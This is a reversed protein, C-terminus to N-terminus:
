ECTMGNATFLRDYTTLGSFTPIPEALGDNPVYTVDLHNCDAVEVTATGWPQLQLGNVLYGLEIELSRDNPLFAANGVLWLPDGNTDELLLDFVIQRQLAGNSGVAETVQLLLGENLEANIWQAAAYGDLPRAAFADPYDAVTPAYAPVDIVPPTYGIGELKPDAKLKFAQNFLFYGADQIAFNELVYTTSNVIPSDYAVESVSTNPEFASRALSDFDGFEIDGQKILLFPFVPFALSIGEFAADRDIRVLTMANNGGAPSYRTTAGSSSCAVRWVTITVEETLGISRAYNTKYLVVRKSYTPGSPKDPLPSAACSPPYARLANAKPTGPRPNTGAVKAVIADARAAQFEAAATDRAATQDPTLTTPVAAHAAIGGGALILSLSLKSLFTM